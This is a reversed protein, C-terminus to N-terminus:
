WAVPLRIRSNGIVRSRSKYAALGNKKLLGLTVLLVAARLPALRGAALRLLAFRSRISARLTAGARSLLTLFEPFLFRAPRLRPPNEGSLRFNPWPLITARTALMASLDNITTSDAM